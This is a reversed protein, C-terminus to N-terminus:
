PPAQIQAPSYYIEIGRRACVDTFHGPDYTVLFNVRHRSDDLVLRIVRDVLSLCRGGEAGANMCQELAISRYEGDEVLDPRLAKMKREFDAAWRKKGLFKTNLTEYLIPWPFVLQARQVYPMAEVAETHHADGANYYAYWFGSDTLVRKNIQSRSM